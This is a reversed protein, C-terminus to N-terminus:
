GDDHGEFFLSEAPEPLVCRHARRHPNNSGFGGLKDGHIVIAAHVLFGVMCKGCVDYREPFREVTTLREAVPIVMPGGCYPCRRQGIRHWWGRHKTGSVM